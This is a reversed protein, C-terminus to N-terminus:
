QKNLIRIIIEDLQSETLSDFDLKIENTGMVPVIFKILKEYFTLKQVSDLKKFETQVTEFNDNLFLKIKDRLEGTAKNPTGKKRGAPNNVTGKKPAM